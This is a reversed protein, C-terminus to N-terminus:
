IVSLKGTTQRTLGNEVENREETKCVLFLKVKITEKDSQEKQTQM